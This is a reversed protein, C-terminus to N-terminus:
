SNIIQLRYVERKEFLQETQQRYHKYHDTELHFALAKEDKWQEYFVFTDKYETSEHLTYQICGAEARSAEILNLLETRLLDETGPKAKLIANIVIESM